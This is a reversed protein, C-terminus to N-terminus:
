AAVRRARQAMPTITFGRELRPAMETGDLHFSRECAGIREAADLAGQYTGRYIERGANCLRWIM